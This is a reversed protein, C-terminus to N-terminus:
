NDHSPMSAGIARLSNGLWELFGLGFLANYVPLTDGVNLTRGGLEVSAHGPMVTLHANLVLPQGDSLDPNKGAIHIMSNWKNGSEGDLTITLRDYHFNELADRLLKVGGDEQQLAAPPVAPQYNLVGQENTALTAQNVAVGRRSLSVPIRGSVSGSARAADVNAIDLVAQLDLNDARFVVGYHDAQPDLTVPELLLRGGSFGIAAHEIGLRGKDDIHFQITGDTVHLGTDIQAVTLIQGPPTRPPWLRDFVVAGTLNEVEVSGFLFSLEGLSLTGGVALNRGNWQATGSATVTGRVATLDDSLFSVLEHPQLGDPAFALERLHIQAHGAAGQARAIGDFTAVVRGAASTTTGHFTIKDTDVAAKGLLEIPQTWFPLNLLRLRLSANEVLAEAGFMVEAETDELAIALDARKILAKPIRIHASGPANGSRILTLLPDIAKDIRLTAPAGPGQVSVLTPVLPSATTVDGKRTLRFRGALAFM